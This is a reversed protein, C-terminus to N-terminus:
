ARLLGDWGPPARIQTLPTRVPCKAFPHMGRNWWADKWQLRIERLIQKVSNAPDFVKDVFAADYGFATEPYEAECARMADAFDDKLFRGTKIYRACLVFPPEYWMTDFLWKNGRGPRFYNKQYLHGVVTEEFRVDPYMQHLRGLNRPSNTLVEGDRALDAVLKPFPLSVNPM